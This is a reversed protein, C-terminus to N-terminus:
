THSTHMLQSHADTMMAPQVTGCMMTTPGRPKAVVWATDLIQKHTNSCHVSCNDSAHVQGKNTNNLDHALQQRVNTLHILHTLHLM